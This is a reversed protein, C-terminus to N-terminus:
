ATARQAYVAGLMQNVKKTIYASKRFTMESYQRPNPNDPEDHQCGERNLQHQFNDEHCWKLGGWEIWESDSVEVSEAKEPLGERCRWAYEEFQMYWPKYSNGFMMTFGESFKVRVIM